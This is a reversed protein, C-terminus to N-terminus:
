EVDFPKSRIVFPGDPSSGEVTARFRGGRDVPTDVSVGHHADPPLEVALGTCDGGVPEVPQWTSGVLEELVVICVLAEFSVTYPTSNVVELVVPSGRSAPATVVRLEPLDILAGTPSQCGALLCGLIWRLPRSQSGFLRNVM